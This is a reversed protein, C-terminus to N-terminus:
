LSASAPTKQYYNILDEDYQPSDFWKSYNYSQYPRLEGTQRDKRMKTNTYSERFSKLFDKWGDNLVKYDREITTECDEIKEPKFLVVMARVKAYTNLDVRQNPNKLKNM